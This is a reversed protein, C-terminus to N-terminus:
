QKSGSVSAQGHGDRNIRELRVDELEYAPRHTMKGLKKDYALLSPNLRTSSRDGLSTYGQDYLCCYPLNNLRFYSWIDHYSWELLPFIRMMAPWGNNTPAMECLNLGEPDSRRCGLFIAKLQSDEAVLQEFAVKLGGEYRRLLGYRQVSDDVFKELEEFPNASKVYVAGLRVSPPTMRALIDLLVTCDKGGNFSLMMENPKYLTMARKIIEESHELKERLQDNSQSKKVPPIHLGRSTHYHRCVKHWFLSVLKM